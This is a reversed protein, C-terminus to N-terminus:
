TLIPTIYYLPKGKKRLIFSPNIDNGILRELSIKNDSDGLSQLKYVLDYNTFNINLMSIISLKLDEIAKEKNIEIEEDKGSYYIKVTVIAEENDSENDNEQISM